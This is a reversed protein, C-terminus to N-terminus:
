EGTLARVSDIRFYVLFSKKEPAGEEAPCKSHSSRRLEAIRAQDTVEETKTLYLRTGKYGPGAEVFLYAAHPNTQLNAHSRKDAMIFAVTKETMVHPRGYLAADVIGAKDATALVGTGKANEFYAKLDM